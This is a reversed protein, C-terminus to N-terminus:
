LYGLEKMKPGALAEVQARESETLRGRFKGVSAANIGALDFGDPDVGVWGALDLVAERPSGVFSEYRVVLVDGQVAEAAAVSRLWSQAVGSPNGM